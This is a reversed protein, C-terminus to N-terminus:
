NRQNWRFTVRALVLGGLLWIGLAIAVGGLNWNGGQELASFNEPLFVYRMGQAMWKLPFISAVNQMWDPLVSFQIYVGSIFQLILLPPVVVGTASRRTRPLTSLAIGLLTCGALGLVWVWALVGWREWSDPLKVGFLLAGIGIVLVSQILGAVFVQGLKGLFYSVPSLPTAGWRKLTGGTRENAIDIATSQIGTLILGSALMATVYYTAASVKNGNADSGFNSDHFITAFLMLMIIPFLFNFVMSDTSRVYGLVEYRVRGIGSRVVSM